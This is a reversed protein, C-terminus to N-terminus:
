VGSGSTAIDGQELYIFEPEDINHFILHFHLSNMEYDIVLTGSGYGDPDGGGRTGVQVRMGENTLWRWLSLLVM